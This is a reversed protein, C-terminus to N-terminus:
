KCLDVLNEENRRKEVSRGEASVYEIRRAVLLLDQAFSLAASEARSNKHQLKESRKEKKITARV